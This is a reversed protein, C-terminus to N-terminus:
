VNKRTGLISNYYRNLTTILVSKFPYMKKDNLPFMWRCFGKFHSPQLSFARKTLLRDKSNSGLCDPFRRLNSQFM